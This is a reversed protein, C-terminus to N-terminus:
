SFDSSSDPSFAAVHEKRGEWRSRLKVIVRTIDDEESAKVARLAEGLATLLVEGEPSPLAKSFDSLTDKIM